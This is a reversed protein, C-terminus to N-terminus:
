LYDDLDSWQDESDKSSLSSDLPEEEKFDPRAKKLQSPNIKSIHNSKRDNFQDNDDDDSNSESYLDFDARIYPVQPLSLFVTHSCMRAHAHTHVHTHTHTHTLSLSFM